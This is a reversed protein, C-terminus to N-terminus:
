VGIGVCRCSEGPKLDFVEKRRIYEKARNKNYFDTSITGDPWKIHYMDPYQKNAKIRM